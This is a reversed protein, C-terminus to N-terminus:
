DYRVSFEQHYVARTEPLASIKSPEVTV